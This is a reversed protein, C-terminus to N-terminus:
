VVLPYCRIGSAYDFSFKARTSGVAGVTKGFADSLILFDPFAGSGNGDLDGLM